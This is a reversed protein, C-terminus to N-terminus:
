AREDATNLFRDRDVVVRTHTGRAIGGSPDSAEISFHLTRGEVRELRAHATVQRGPATPALHDLSINTGVSTQGPDLAASVAAVAAGECLAVLAPTGFVAVDGSGLASATDADTVVHDATAELGPEIPVPM